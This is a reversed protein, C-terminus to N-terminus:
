QIGHGLYGCFIFGIACNLDGFNDRVFSVWLREVDRFM